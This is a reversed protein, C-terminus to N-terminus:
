QNAPIEAVLEYPDGQNNVHSSLYVESIAPATCIPERIVMYSLAFHQTMTASTQETSTDYDFQSHGLTIHMWAKIESQNSDDTEIPILALEINDALTDLLQLLSTDDSATAQTQIQLHLTRGASSPESQENNITESTSNILVQPVAQPSAPLRLLSVEASAALQTQLQQQIQQLIAARNISM